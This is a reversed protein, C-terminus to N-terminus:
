LFFAHQVRRRGPYTTSSQSASNLVFTTPLLLSFVHALFFRWIDPPPLLKKWSYDMKRVEVFCFEWEKPCRKGPLSGQTSLPLLQKIEQLHHDNNIDNNTNSSQFSFVTLLHLKVRASSGGPSAADPSTWRGTDGWLPRNCAVIGHYFVSRLGGPKCGNEEWIMNIGFLFVGSGMVPVEAAAWM